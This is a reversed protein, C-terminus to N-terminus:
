PEAVDTEEPEGAIYLPTSGVAEDNVYLRIDYRHVGRRSLFRFGPMEAILLLGTLPDDVVDAGTVNPLPLETLDPRVLTARFEYRGPTEVTLQAFLYLGGITAEPVGPELTFQNVVGDITHTGDPNRTVGRCILLAILSPPAM